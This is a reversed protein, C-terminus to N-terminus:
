SKTMGSFAPMWYPKSESSARERSGPKRRPSAEIKLLSSPFYISGTVAKDSATADRAATAYAKRMGSSHRKKPMMM